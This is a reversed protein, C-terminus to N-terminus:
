EETGQATQVDNEVQKVSECAQYFSDLSWAMPYIFAYQHYDTSTSTKWTCRKEFAFTTTSPGKNMKKANVNGGKGATTTAGSEEKLSCEIINGDNITYTSVVDDPIYVSIQQEDGRMTNLPVETDGNRALAEFVWDGNDEMHGNWLRIQATQVDACPYIYNRSDYQGSKMGDPNIFLAGRAFPNERLCDRIQSVPYFRLCRLPGPGNPGPLQSLAAQMKSIRNQLTTHAGLCKGIRMMDSIYLVGDLMTAELSFLISPAQAAPPPPAAAGEEEENHAASDKTAMEAKLQQILEQVPAPVEQLHFLLEYSPLHVYVNEDYALLSVKDGWVWPVLMYEEFLLARRVFVVYDLVYNPEVYPFGFNNKDIDLSAMEAEIIEKALKHDEVLPCNPIFNVAPMKLPPLNKSIVDRVQSIASEIVAKLPQSGDMVAIPPGPPTSNESEM